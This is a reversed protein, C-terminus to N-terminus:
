RGQDRSRDREAKNTPYQGVLTAAAEQLAKQYRGLWAGWGDQNPAIGNKLLQQAMQRLLGGNTLVTESNGLEGIEILPQGSVILKRGNRGTAHSRDKGLRTCRCHVAPAM